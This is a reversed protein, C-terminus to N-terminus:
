IRSRDRKTLYKERSLNQQILSMVSMLFHFLILSSMNTQVEQEQHLRKCAPSLEGLDDVWYIKALTEDLPLGM